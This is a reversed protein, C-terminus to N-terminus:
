GGYKCVNNLVENLKKDGYTNVFTLIRKGARKIDIDVNDDSYIMKTEDSELRKCFEKYEEEKAFDYIDIVMNDGFFNSM